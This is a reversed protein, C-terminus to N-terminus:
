CRGERLKKDSLLSENYFFFPKNDSLVRLYKKDCGELPRIAILKFGNSM